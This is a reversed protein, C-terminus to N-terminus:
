LERSLFEIAKVNFDYAYEEQPYEGCNEFVHYNLSPNVDLFTKLNDIPNTTSNAGWIVYLPTELNALAESIPQNLYGGILSAPAYKSLDGDQKASNAYHNVVYSSAIDKNHYIKEKMFGSLSPKSSLINYVFSGVIPINFAKTTVKGLSGPIDSKHFIGTPSIAIIRDFTGPDDHEVQIAYASSLSSSICSCKKGIVEDVFNKIVYTYVESTYTLPRKESRGFGPLDIAYVTFNNALEEFNNRWLFSSSGVSTDHVLLLSPGFGKKTYFVKGFVTDHYGTEGSLTNELKKVKAYTIRNYVEMSACAAGLVALGKLLKKKM